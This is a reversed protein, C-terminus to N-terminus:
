SRAAQCTRDRHLLIVEEKSGPLANNGATMEDNRFIHRCFLFKM